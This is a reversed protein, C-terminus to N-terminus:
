GSKSTINNADQLDGAIKAKNATRGSQILFFEEGHTSHETALFERLHDFVQILYIM